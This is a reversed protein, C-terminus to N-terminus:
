NPRLSKTDAPSVSPKDASEAAPKNTPQNTPQNTPEVSLKDAFEAAPKNTPEVSPKDAFEAAPQNTPEASPKDTTTKTDTDSDTSASHSSNDVDPNAPPPSAGTEDDRDLNREPFQHGFAIPNNEFWLTSLVLCGAIVSAASLKRRTGHDKLVSIAGTAIAASGFLLATLQANVGMVESRKMLMLVTTLIAIVACPVAVITLIRRERQELRAATSVGLEYVADEPSDVVSWLKYLGASKLVDVVIDNPSVVSFHGKKQGTSKWIRVLSAVLGSNIYQMDSLDVLVNTKDSAEIKSIVDSTAQEVVAWDMGSLMSYFQVTCYRRQESFEFPESITDIEAESLKTVGLHRYAQNIDTVITWLDTLGSQQLDMTVSKHSSIVVFRRPAEDMGQWTRVLSAVIGSPITTIQSLDLLVTNASANQVLETVRKTASELDERQMESLEPTFRLTCFQPHEEFSYGSM